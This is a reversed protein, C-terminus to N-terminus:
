FVSIIKCLAKGSKILPLPKNATGMIIAGALDQGHGKIYQRTLFSGMSHGLLFYPLDPYKKQTLKRLNHIDNVVFENGCTQHFFGLENDNAASLGHGLHDQGVVYIGKENMYEAFDNYREIHEVMGHSIQLIAKVKGEPIWEIAHIKNVGNSSTYLFDRRM